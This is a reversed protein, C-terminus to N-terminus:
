DAYSERQGIGLRLALMTMILCSTLVMRRLTFHVKSWLLSKASGQGYKLVSTDLGRADSERMGHVFSPLRFASPQLDVSIRGVGQFALELTAYSVAKNEPLCSKKRTKLV